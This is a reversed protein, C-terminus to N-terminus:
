KARTTSPRPWTCARPSIAPRARPRPTLGRTNWVARGAARGVTGGPEARQTIPQTVRGHSDTYKLRMCTRRWGISRRGSSWFRLRFRGERSYALVTVPGTEGAPFYEALPRTGQVSPRDPQLGSLLDYTVEVARAHWALPALILLSGALILGPHAIIRRSLWQWFSQLVGSNEM